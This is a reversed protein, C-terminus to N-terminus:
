ETAMDMLAQFIMKVCGRGACLGSFIDAVLRAPSVTDSFLRTQCNSAKVAGNDVGNVVRYVPL